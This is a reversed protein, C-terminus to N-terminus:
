SGHFARTQEMSADSPTRVGEGSGLFDAKFIEDSPTQQRLHKHTRYCRQKAGTCATRLCRHGARLAPPKYVTTTKGSANNRHKRQGPIACCLLLARYTPRQNHCAIIRVARFQRVTTITIARVRPSSQRLKRVTGPRHLVTTSRLVLM